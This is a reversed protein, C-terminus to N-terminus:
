PLCDGNVLQQMTPNYANNSISFTLLDLNTNSLILNNIGCYNNLSKNSVIQFEIHKNNQVELLLLDDLNNLSQNNTIEFKCYGASNDSLPHISKIVELNILGISSLSENNNIIIDTFGGSIQQLNNLGELNTMTNDEIILKTIGEQGSVLKKVNNLGDLSKLSTNNIIRLYAWSNIEQSGSIVKIKLLSRIDSLLPNDIITLSGLRELNNLGNFSNLSENRGINLSGGIRKLNELGFMNKLKKNGWITLYWSKELAELGGLDELLENNSIQIGGGAFSHGVVKINNLGRISKLNSNKSILLGEFKSINNNPWNNLRTGAPWDMDVISTISSPFDEISKLKDNNEIIVSEGIHKISNLGEINELIKLNGILLSRTITDIKDNLAILDVIHDSEVDTGDIVLFGNLKSICHEFNDIDTQTKLIINGTYVQKVEITCEVIENPNSNPNCSTYILLIIIHFVNNNVEFIKM